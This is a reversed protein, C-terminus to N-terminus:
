AIAKALGTTSGGGIAVVGDAEKEAVVAMAKETVSVPTHMVAGAFVGASADGLLASVRSAETEQPPTAVVLVKKLGLRVAEAPLQLITGAGFVVRAPHGNYHFPRM